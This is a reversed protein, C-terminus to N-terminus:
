IVKAKLVPLFQRSSYIRGRCCLSLPLNRPIWGAGCVTQATEKERSCNQKKDVQFLNYLYSWLAVRQFLGPQVSYIVSMVVSIDQAPFINKAQRAFSEQWYVEEFHLALCQATRDVSEAPWIGWPHLDDAIM